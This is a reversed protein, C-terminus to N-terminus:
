ISDRETATEKIQFAVARDAFGSAFVAALAGLADDVTTGALAIAVAPVVDACIAM